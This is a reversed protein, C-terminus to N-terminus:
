YAFQDIYAAVVGSGQIDVGVVRVDTPDFMASTTVPDDLDLTLCYWQGTTARVGGGDAWKATPGSQAYLLIDVSTGGQVLVNVSMVRGTLDGPPALNRVQMAGGGSAELRMLGLDPNGMSGDWTLMPGGAGTVVFGELDTAFSAVYRQTGTVACADGGGTTSSGESASTTTAGGAGGTGGATTSTAGGVGGEGGAGTNAAASLGEIGGASMGSAEGVSGGGYATTSTAAGASTAGSDTTTAAGSGFAGGVDTSAAGGFGTVNSAGSGDASSGGSAAVDSFSGTNGGDGLSGGAPDPSLSDDSEDVPDYGFRMCSMLLCATLLSGGLRALRYRRPM